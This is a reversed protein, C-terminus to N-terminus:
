LPPSIKMGIDCTGTPCSTSGGPKENKIHIYWTEGPQFVMYGADTGISFYLNPATNGLAYPYTASLDCRTKSVWVRRYTTPGGYEFVAINSYSLSTSSPVTLTAILIQNAGFGSSVFREGTMAVRGMDM